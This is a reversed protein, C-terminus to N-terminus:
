HSNPALRRFGRSRVCAASRRKSAAGVTQLFPGHLRAEKCSEAGAPHLPSGPRPRRPKDTRPDPFLTPARGRVGKKSSLRVMSIIRSIKYQLGPWTRESTSFIIAIDF